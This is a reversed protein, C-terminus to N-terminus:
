IVREHKWLYYTGPSSDPEKHFGHRELWNRLRDNHVCEIYTADWPNIAHVQTVFTTFTGKGKEFVEFSALDLTDCKEYELYHIGKRVYLQMEGTYLWENYVHKTHSRQIFDAVAEVMNM